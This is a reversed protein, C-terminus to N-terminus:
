FRWVLNASVSQSWYGDGALLGYQARV